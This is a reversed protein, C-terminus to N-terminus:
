RKQGSAIFAVLQSIEAGTLKTGYYTPMVGAQFGSVVFAAPDTISQRVYAALPMNGDAKASAAVNDLSPGITGNSNAPAFTHCGGCGQATFIQAGAATPSGSGSSAPGSAPPAPAAPSSSNHTGVTYAIVTLFLAVLGIVVGMLLYRALDNEYRRTPTPM